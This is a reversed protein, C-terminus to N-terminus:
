SFICSVPILLTYIALLSDMYGQIADQKAPTHVVNGFSDSVTVMGSRYKDGRM